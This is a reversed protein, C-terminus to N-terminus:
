NVWPVEEQTTHNTTNLYGEETINEWWYFEANLHRMIEAKAEEFTYGATLNGEADREWDQPSCSFFHEISFGDVPHSIMYKNIISRPPTQMDNM